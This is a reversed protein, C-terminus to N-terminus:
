FDDSETEARKLNRIMWRLRAVRAGERLTPDAASLNQEILPIVVSAGTTGLTILIQAQQAPTEARQMAALLPNLFELSTQNESVSRLEEAAESRQAANGSRLQMLLQAHVQAIPPSACSLIAGLLCVIAFCLGSTIRMSCSMEQPNVKLTPSFSFSM